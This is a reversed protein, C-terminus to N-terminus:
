STVLHAPPKAPINSKPDMFAFFKNQAAIIREAFKELEKGESAIIEEFDNFSFMGKELALLFYKLRNLAEDIYEQSNNFGELTLAQQGRMLNIRVGFGPIGMASPISCHLGTILSLTQCLHQADRCSQQELFSADFQIFYNIGAEPNAYPSILEKGLEQNIQAIKKTAYDFNNFQYEVSGGRELFKEMINSAVLTELQSFQSITYFSNSGFFISLKQKLTQNGCAIPTILGWNAAPIKKRMSTTYIANKRIEPYEYLSPIKDERFLGGNYADILIVMDPYKALYEKILEAIEALAENRLIFGLATPEEWIFAVPVRDSKQASDFAEKISAATVTFKNGSSQAYVLEGGLLYPFSGGCKFSGEVGIVCPKKYLLKKQNQTDNVQAPISGFIGDHFKQYHNQFAISLVYYIAIMSSGPLVLVDDIEVPIQRKLVQYALNILKQPQHGVTQALEIPSLSYEQIYENLQKLDQQLDSAPKIDWAEIQQLQSSEGIQKVLPRFDKSYRFYECFNSFGPNIAPDFEFGVSLM